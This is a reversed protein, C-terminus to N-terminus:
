VTVLLTASQTNFILIQQSGSDQATPILCSPNGLWVLMDGVSPMPIDLEDRNGYDGPLVIADIVGNTAEFEVTRESDNEPFFTFVRGTSGLSDSSQQAGPLQRIRQFANALTSQGSTIGLWCPPTCETLRLERMMPSVTQRYGVAIAVGVALSFILLLLLSYKMLRLM